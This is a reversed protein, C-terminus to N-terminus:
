DELHGAHADLDLGRSRDGRLQESM